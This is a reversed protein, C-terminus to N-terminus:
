LLAGQLGFFMYPLGVTGAPAAFTATAPLPYASTQIMVGCARLPVVGMSVYTVKGTTNDCSMAAYYNGPALTQSLAAAQIANNAGAQAIGGLSVLRAGAANYLGADINGTPTNIQWGVQAIPTPATVLLPVYVAMNAVPWASTNIVASNIAAALEGATSGEGLTDLTGIPSVGQSLNNVITM